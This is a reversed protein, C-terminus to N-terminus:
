LSSPILLLLAPATSLTYCQQYMRTLLVWHFDTVKTVLTVLINITIDTVVTVYVTMDITTIIIIFATVMTSPIYMDM